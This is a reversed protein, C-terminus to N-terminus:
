CSHHVHLYCRGTISVNHYHQAGYSAAFWFSKTTIPWIKMLCTVIGASQCETCVSHEFMRHKFMKYSWLKTLESLYSQSLHRFQRAEQSLLLVVSTNGVLM